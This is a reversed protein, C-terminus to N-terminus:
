KSSVHGLLRFLKIEKSEWLCGELAFQAVQKYRGRDFLQHVSDDSLVLLRLDLRRLDRFLQVDSLGHHYGHPVRDERAVLACRQKTWAECMCGNRFELSVVDVSIRRAPSSDGECQVVRAIFETDEEPGEDGRGFVQACEPVVDCNVISSCYRPTEFVM